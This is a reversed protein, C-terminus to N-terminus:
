LFKIGTRPWEHRCDPCQWAVTRDQSVDYLGIALSFRGRTESAGYARAYELADKRNRYMRTGVAFILEGRLDIGCNPCNEPGHM